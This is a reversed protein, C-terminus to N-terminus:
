RTLIPLFVAYLEVFDASSTGPPVSIVMSTPAFFHGELDAQVKYTCSILESFAYDGNSNTTTILGQGASITVGAFLSGSISTVNGAISKGSGQRDYVYIDATPTDGCVFNSAVSDFAVLLGDSTISPNNSGSNGLTGDNTISIPVTEGTQQDHVFVDSSENSDGNVLNSAASQFAIFRGDGSISPFGYQSSSGNGQTGDSAVSVRETNGTDRDHVFVDHEGNSDDTVLVNSRSVFAVFQGDDSLDSYAYDFYSTGGATGDSAVSVRETQGTELDHVFIDKDGNNDGVVLNTANSAFSIYRGNASISPKSSSDDGQTGDSAVSVRETSGTQRDHVFVDGKGNTDDSVLDSASSDFVVFRGDSSITQPGAGAGSCGTGLSGDSAISVLTTNGSQMDHVFVDHCLNTDGEVLNNAMSTFAVFQGNASISPNSSLSSAHTGGNAISILTMQGTIRDKVFIQDLSGIPAFNDASSQFAIYHGDASISPKSSYNNGPTGDSSVSIRETTGVSAASNSDRPKISNHVFGSTDVKVRNTTIALTILIVFSVKLWNIMTTM